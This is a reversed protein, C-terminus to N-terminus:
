MTGVTVLSQWEPQSGHGTPNVVHYSKAFCSHEPSREISRQGPEVGANEWPDGLGKLTFRPASPCHKHGQPTAGSGEEWKRHRDTRHWDAVVRNTRM